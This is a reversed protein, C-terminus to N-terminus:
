SAEKVYVRLKASRARPNDREETPQPIIPKKMLPTLKGKLQWKVQRDELSHFTIIGVRGGPLLLDSLHNLMEELAGMEDNVWMRLAQFVKTLPHRGKQTKSHLEFGLTRVFDETTLPRKLKRRENVWIKAIKRSFKEDGYNWLIDALEKEGCRMLLDEATERASSDMRMDLPGVKQFSFGRDADDLQFSSVGLDVLIRDFQGDEAGTISRFNAHKYQIPWQQLRKKCRELSSEDQDVALIREPTSFRDLLAKLHGGGGCTLDLLGKSHDWALHELVENLLVPLHNNAM